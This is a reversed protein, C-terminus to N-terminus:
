FAYNFRVRVAALNQGDSKSYSMAPTVTAGKIGMLPVSYAAYFTNVSKKAVGGLADTSDRVFGVGAPGFVGNIGFSAADATKDNGSLKAFNVNVNADSALAYGASLGLGSSSLGNTKFSELGARLTLSGSSYVLTPRLGYAAGTNDKKETVLGVELRLSGANFGAVMHARGDTMRGRLTNARYGAGAVTELVTDKGVPFMDAAEFRGVKLDLASNGFQIWVDDMTVDNSGDDTSVPVILTGKANVYNDGNKILQANANIEVRGSATVSKSTEAVDGSKKTIDLELNADFVVGAHASTAAVVAAALAVLRIKFQMYNELKNLHHRDTSREKFSQPNVVLATM